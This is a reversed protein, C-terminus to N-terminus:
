FFDPAATVLLAAGRGIGFVSCIASGSELVKFL